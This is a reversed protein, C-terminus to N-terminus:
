RASPDVVRGMFLIAGTPNHQIVYFFPRDARFVILDTASGLGIM